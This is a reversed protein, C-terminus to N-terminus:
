EGKNFTTQNSKISPFCRKWKKIEGELKIGNYPSSQFLATRYGKTGKKSKTIGFLIDESFSHLSNAM